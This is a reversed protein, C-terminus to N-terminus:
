HQGAGAAVRVVVWLGGHRLEDGEGADAAPLLFALPEGQVHLFGGEAAVRLPGAALDDPEEADGLGGTLGVLPLGEAFQDPVGLLVGAGEVPQQEVLHVPGGPVQEVVDLQLPEFAVVADREDGDGLRGLVGGGPPHHPPREGVHRAEVGLLLGHVYPLPDGPPDGFAPERGGGGVAVAVDALVPPPHHLDIGLVSRLDAAHEPQEGVLPQRQVREGLPQGFVADGVARRRRLPGAARQVRQEPVPGVDPLHRVLALPVGATVLRQGVALGPVAHLRQEAAFDVAGVFQGVGAPQDCAPVAAVRDGPLPHFLLELGPLREVDVVPAALVAAVPVRRDPQPLRVQVGLHQVQEPLDADVVRGDAAPERGDQPRLRRVLLFLGALPPRVEFPLQRRQLPLLVPQQVQPQGVLDVGVGEGRLPPFQPVPLRGELELRLHRVARVGLRGVQGGPRKFERLGQRLLPNRRIM